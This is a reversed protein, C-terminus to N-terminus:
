YMGEQLGPMANYPLEVRSEEQTNRRGTMNEKLSLPRDGEVVLDDKVALCDTSELLVLASEDNDDFRELIDDDWVNTADGCFPKPPSRGM